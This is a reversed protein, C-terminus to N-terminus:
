ASSPMRSGRQDRPSPSTYLLCFYCLRLFMKVGEKIKDSPTISGTNEEADFSPDEFRHMYRMLEVWLGAELDEQMNLLGESDEGRAIMSLLELMCLKLEQQTVSSLFKFLPEPYALALVNQKLLENGAAPHYEGARAVRWLLDNIEMDRKSSPHVNFRAIQRGYCLISSLPSSQDFLGVHHPEHRLLTAVAPASSASSSNSFLSPSPPPSLESSSGISSSSSSPSLHAAPIVIDPHKPNNPYFAFAIKMPVTSTDPSQTPQAEGDQSYSAM